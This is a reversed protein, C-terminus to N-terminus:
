ARQPGRCKGRGMWRVGVADFRVARGYQSSSALEGAGLADEYDIRWGTRWSKAAGNSAAMAYRRVARVVASGIASTSGGGICDELVMAMNCERGEDESANWPEDCCYGCDGRM